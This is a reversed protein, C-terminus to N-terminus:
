MSSVNKTQIFAKKTAIYQTLDMGNEGSKKESESEVYTLSM